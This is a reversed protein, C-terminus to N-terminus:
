LLGGYVVGPEQHQVLPSSGPEWGTRVQGMRWELRVVSPISRLYAELDLFGLNKVPIADGCLAKYETQLRSVSVGEKSAQLVARVMKKIVEGDYMRCVCYVCEAPKLDKTKLLECRRLADLVLEM